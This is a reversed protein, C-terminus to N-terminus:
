IQSVAFAEAIQLLYANKQQAARTSTDKPSAPVDLLFSDLSIRRLFRVHQRWIRLVSLKREPPVFIKVEM